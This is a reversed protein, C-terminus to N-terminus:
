HGGLFNTWGKTAVWFFQGDRLPWSEVTALKARFIMSFTVKWPMPSIKWIRFASSGNKLMSNENRSHLIKQTCWIRPPRNLAGGCNKSHFIKMKQLFFLENKTCFKCKRLVSKQTTYKSCNKLACIQMKKTCFKNNKLSSNSNNRSNANESHPFQM